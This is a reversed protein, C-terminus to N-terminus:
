KWSCFYYNFNDNTVLGNENIMKREIKFTLLAHPLHLNFILAMICKKCLTILIDIILQSSSHASPFFSFSYSIDTHLFPFNLFTKCTTHIIAVEGSQNLRTPPLSFSQHALPFKERELKKGIVPQVLHYSTTTSEWRQTTNIISTELEKVNKTEEEFKETFLKEYNILILKVIEM